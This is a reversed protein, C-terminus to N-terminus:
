PNWETLSNAVQLLESRTLDGDVLFEREGTNVILMPPKEYTVSVQATSGALQGATLTISESSGDAGVSMIGDAGGWTRVQDGLAHTAVVFTDFGRRYVLTLGRDASVQSGTNSSWPKKAQCVVAALHYGAPLLTPILPSYDMKRTAWGLSGPRYGSDITTTVAGAPPSQTFLGEAKPANFVLNELREVRTLIGDHSSALRVPIGTQKDIVIALDQLNSPASPQTTAAPQPEPAPGTLQWAARGQYTVDAVSFGPAGEDLIGRVYTGLMHNLRAFPDSPSGPLDNAGSYVTYSSATGPREVLECVTNSRSDVTTVFHSGQATDGGEIRLDGQATLVFRLRMEVATSPSADALAPEADGLAAFQAPSENVQRAAAGTIVLDGQLTTTSAM